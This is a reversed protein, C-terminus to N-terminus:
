GTRSRTMDTSARKLGRAGRSSRISRSNASNGARPTRAGDSAKGGDTDRLASTHQVRYLFEALQSVTIPNADDYRRISQRRTVVDTLSPESESIKALDPVPLDHITSGGSPEAAERGIPESPFKGRFRFTGGNPLAHWGPDPATTCHSNM